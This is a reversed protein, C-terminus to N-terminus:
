SKSRKKSLDVFMSRPPSSTNSRRCDVGCGNWAKRTIKIKPKITRHVSKTMLKMRLHTMVSRPKGSQRGGLIRIDMEKHLDKGLLMKVDMAEVPVVYVESRYVKGQITLEADFVGIAKSRANGFERFMRLAPRLMPSGIRVYEDNRLITKFSGTDLIALINTGNIQVAVTEDDVTVRNVEEDKKSLKTPNEFKSSIHEFQDCRFCKPGKDKHSCEKVAHDTSGCAFCHVKKVSQKADKKEKADAKERSSEINPNVKGAPKKRGLKARMRDYLELNKKIEDITQSHYL